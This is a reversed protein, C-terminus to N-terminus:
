TVDTTANTPVPGIPHLLRGAPSSSSGPKGLVTFTLTMNSYDTTSLNPAGAAVISCDVMDRALVDTMDEQMWFFQCRAKIVGATWPNMVRKASAIAVPTYSVLIPGVVITSGAPILIYGLKLMDPTAVWDTGETKTTAGVKVAQISAINYVPEGQANLIPVISDLAAVTQTSDTIPTSSQTYNGVSTAGYLYLQNELSLNQTVVNFTEAYETVRQERIILRGTRGTKHTITTPAFNPPIVDVDGLERWAGLTVGDTAYRALHLRSGGQFLRQNNIVSM